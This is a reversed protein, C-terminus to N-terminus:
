DVFLFENSNLLMRCANALGHQSVYAAVLSQEEQSPVRGLVIRYLAEIDRQLLPAEPSQGKDKSAAREIAIRSARDAIWQSQRVILKDNLMALAQIATLSVNRKPALQSADPCDLADMFPDPLTRFVFRYVSRRHNDPHDVDFNVYDVTPTVHLGSGQNFQRDSPGGMRSNLQGSIWLVSDRIAEADLRRRNMRWLYRNGVDIQAAQPSHQSAQRYVSSTVIRRHTHKIASRPQPSQGCEIDRMEAALWDLLEPHSPMGGMRGFDNPTGVIGQGFHYQWLRNAISRWALFNTPDTLWKALAVRRPGEEQMDPKDFLATLNPVMLLAGPLAEERPQHIDGRHLVHIVRPKEAPRFTGLAEYQNTGCYVSQTPPLGDLEAQWRPRLWQAALAANQEDTRQDRSIQVIEAITSSVPTRDAFLEGPRDTTSIRLRGILHASGHIQHLEIRLRRSEKGVLPNALSFAAHHSKGVDPYIGWATNPNGDFATEINMGGDQNFDARASSLKLERLTQDTENVVFIRIENLHLNGNGQRGPGNHPLSEHTLVELRLGTVAASPTEVDISYVDKDTPNGTALVSADELVKLVSGAGSAVHTVQCIEWQALERRINEEWAIVQQQVDDGLLSPDANKVMAPLSEITAQLEQRRRAIQRDPEYERNAKDTSAFVAQLGYYEGQSIPDFKHDHCRACHSSTSAFTSMVTTVIDDRDVYRAIQRDITDEQISELSSEDWPGTALFGTALIADVTDPFMADGAIQEQVFRRYPKDENFSRILWDRYPWAHERPRDQDHGHTEAYHVVDMWHRAWREGYRPSALLRDVIREFAGPARDLLFQEVQEPTPPLGILDFFLRRILTRRDAAPSVTLGNATLTQLIFRDIPTRSWGTHQQSTVPPLAPLTLPEWSWHEPWDAGSTIWRGITAIEQETLPKGDPPMREEPDHSSVRRFLESQQLEGPVLAQRGSELPQKASVGDTLKLGAEVHDNGHCKLCKSALIPQIDRDFRVEANVIEAGQLLVGPFLSACVTLGTAVVLWAIRQCDVRM